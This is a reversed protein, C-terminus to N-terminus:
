GHLMHLTIGPESRDVRYYPLAALWCELGNAVAKSLWDLAEGWENKIDKEVQRQQQKLLKLFPREQAARSLEKTKESMKTREAQIEIAQTHTCTNPPQRKM